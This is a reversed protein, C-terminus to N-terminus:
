IASVVLGGSNAGEQNILVTGPAEVQLTGNLTANSNAMVRIGALDPRRVILSFTLSAAIDGGSTILVGNQTPDTVEGQVTVNQCNRGFFAQGNPTTGNITIQGDRTLAGPDRNSIGACGSVLVNPSLYGDENSNVTVTFNQVIEDSRNPESDFGLWKSRYSNVTMILGDVCILALGMRDVNDTNLTGRVNGCPIHYNGNGGTLYAGDGKTDKAYVDDFILGNVARFAFGHSHETATSNSAKRGDLKIGQVVINQDRAELSAPNTTQNVVMAKDGFDNVALLWAPNTKSTTLARGSPMIIQDSIYYNGGAPLRVATYTQLAANIATRNAAAAATSDPTLGYPTFASAEFPATSVGWAEVAAQQGADLATTFIAAKRWDTTSLAYDGANITQSTLWVHSGAQTRHYVTCTAGLNSPVKVSLLDDVVDFDAYGGRLIPRAASSAVFAHRGPIARVSYIQFDATAANTGCAVYIGSGSPVYVIYKARTTVASVLFSGGVSSYRLQLGGAGGTKEIDIEYWTTASGSILVGSTNSGDTRAVTGVGTSTTYTALTGPTGITSITGNSKIDSQNAIFTPPAVGGMPALSLHVGIASDPAGDTEGLISQRVSTLVSADFLAAPSLDLVPTLYDFGGRASLRLGGDLAWRGM